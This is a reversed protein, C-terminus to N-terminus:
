FFTHEITLSPIVDARLGQDNLRWLANVGIVTRGIPNLKVGTAISELRDGVGDKNLKQAGIYDLTMSVREHLSYDLGANYRALSEHHADVRYLVGANLHFGFRGFSKSFILDAAYAPDGFGMFDDEDGTPLSADLRLAFDAYETEVLLAKARLIVDGLAAARGDSSATFVPLPAGTNPDLLGRARVKADVDIWLYPVVIGVDVRDSVGYNVFLALADTVLRLDLETDPDPVTFFGRTFGATHVGSFLAGGAGDDITASGGFSTFPIRNGNGFQFSTSTALLSGAGSGVYDVTGSGTAVPQTGAFSVPIEDLDDGEFVDFSAHTYSLAVNLKGRGTTEARESLLPGLGETSRQFVNLQPDFAFTFGAVTSGIPTRQFQSAVTSNLNALGARPDFTGPLFNNSGPTTFTGADSGGIITVVPKYGTPVQGLLDPILSDLDQARAASGLACAWVVLCSAFAGLSRRPARM